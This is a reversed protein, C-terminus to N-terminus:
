NATSTSPQVPDGVSVAVTVSGADRFVFTVKITQGPFISKTLGQLVVSGQGITVPPAVSSTTAQASSTPSTATTSPSATTSSSSSSPTVPATSSPSPTGSTTDQSVAPPNIVLSSRAVVVKSGQIVAGRSADSTVGVLEDDRAGSNVITLSLAATSGVTYAPGAPPFQLTANRIYLTGVQVNAGNIAPVETDTQTIQGAGCGALVLTAAFALVTAGVVRRNQLRVNSDKRAPLWTVAFM